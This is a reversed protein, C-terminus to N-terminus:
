RVVTIRKTLTNSEANSRDFAQFRFEYEGAPPAPELSVTETFIGDGPNMDGNVGNDNLPRPTGGDTTRTVSRIDALGDPDLARVTIVFSTQTSTRVTDPAILDSLVPPQNTRVIELPLFLSNSRFGATGESVFEVSLIGITSRVIQFTVTGSYVSDGKVADPPFGNDFLEGSSLISSGQVSKVLYEIKVIGKPALPSSATAFAATTLSLVDEPLRTPGINVSDTNITSPLLSAKTLLPSIGGSDIVTSDKKECSLF